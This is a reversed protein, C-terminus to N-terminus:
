YVRWGGRRISTVGPKLWEITVFAGADVEVHGLLCTLPHGDVADYTARFSGERAIEDFLEPITLGPRQEPNAGTPDDIDNMEMFRGEFIQVTTALRFDMGERRIRYTYSLPGLEQWRRRSELFEDRASPTGAPQGATVDPGPSEKIQSYCGTLTLAGILGIWAPAKIM